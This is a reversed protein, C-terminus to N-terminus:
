RDAYAALLCPTRPRTRAAAASSAPVPIVTFAIQGPKTSVGMVVAVIPFMTALVPRVLSSAREASSPLCGIPRSIVGSSTALATQNQTVLSATVPCAMLTSPPVTWDQTGFPGPRGGRRLGRLGQALFDM